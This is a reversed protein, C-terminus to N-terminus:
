RRDLIEDRLISAVFVNGLENLHEPFFEAYYWLYDRQQLKDAGWRRQVRAALEPQNAQADTLSFDARLIRRVPLWSVDRETALRRLVQSYSAYEEYANHDILIVRADRARASAIFRRYREEFTELDVRPVLNAEAAGTRRARVWRVVWLQEALM